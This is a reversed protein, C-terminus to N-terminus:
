DLMFISVMCVSYGKVLTDHAKLMMGDHLQATKSNSPPAIFDPSRHYPTAFSINFTAALAETFDMDQATQVVDAGLHSLLRHLTPLM